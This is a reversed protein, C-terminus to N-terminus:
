EEPPEEYVRIFEATRSNEEKDLQSEAIKAWPLIDIDKPISDIDLKGHNFRQFKSIVFDISRIGHNPIIDCLYRLIKDSVLLLSPHHYKLLSVTIYLRELKALGPDSGKIAESINLQPGNIRSLFDSGKNSDKIEKSIKKSSAFIWVCPRLQFTQGGRRYVGNWIPGLFYSFVHESEVKANIEDWFILLPKDPKQTQISSITDFCGMLDDISGLQTINFERHEMDMQKSLREVLFSKGWGPDAVITSSLSRRPNPDERFTKIAKVLKAVDEKHKETIAIYGEVQSWGRWMQFKNYPEKKKDSSNIIGIDQLAQQWSAIEDALSHAKIQFGYDKPNIKLINNFIDKFDMKDAEDKDDEDFPMSNLSNEHSKCWHFSRNLVGRISNISLCKDTCDNESIGELCAIFASFLVTARGVTYSCPKPANNILYFVPGHDVLGEVDAALCIDRPILSVFKNDEHFVVVSFPFKGKDAIKNVNINKEERQSKKIMWKIADYSLHQGLFWPDKELEINTPGLFLLKLDDGISKIWKYSKQYDKTRVYWHANKSNDHNKIVNILEEEVSGKQHDVVIIIDINGIDRLTKEVRQRLGEAGKDYWKSKKINPSIEWDYRRILQPPQPGVQSHVRIIRWTGSNEKALSHLVVHDHQKELICSSEHGKEKLGQLNLPTQNTLTKDYSCLYSLFDTDNPDWFGLGHIDFNSQENNFSHLMRTVGGAACLSLIQSNVSTKRSCYREKGVGSYLKPSSIEKTVLWNEDVVWDGVVLIKKRREATRM